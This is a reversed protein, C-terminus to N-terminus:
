FNIYYVFKMENCTASYFENITLRQLFFSSMKDFLTVKTLKDRCQPGLGYKIKNLKAGFFQITLQKLCM